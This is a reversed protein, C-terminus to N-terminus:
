LRRWELNSDQKWVVDHEAGLLDKAMLDADAATLRDFYILGPMICEITWDRPPKQYNSQNPHSQQAHVMQVDRPRVRHVLLGPSLKHYVFDVHVDPDSM